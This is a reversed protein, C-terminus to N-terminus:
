GFIVLACANPTRATTSSRSVARDGPQPGDEACGDATRRATHGDGFVVRPCSVKWDVLSPRNTTLTSCASIAYHLGGGVAKTQVFFHLEDAEFIRGSSMVSM